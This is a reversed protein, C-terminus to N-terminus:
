SITNNLYEQLHEKFESPGPITLFDSLKIKDYMVMRELM